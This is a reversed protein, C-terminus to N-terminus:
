GAVFRGRYMSLQVIVPCIRFKKRQPYVGDCYTGSVSSAVFDLNLLSSLSFLISLSLIELVSRSLITGAIQIIGPIIDEYSSMVNFQKPNIPRLCGLQLMVQMANSCLEHKYNQKIPKPLDYM